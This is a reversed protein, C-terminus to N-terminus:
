SYLGMKTTMNSPGSNYIDHLHDINSALYLKGSIAAFKSWYAGSSSKELYEKQKLTDTESLAIRLTNLTDEFHSKIIKSFDYSTINDSFALIHAFGEDFTIYKLKNIYGNETFPYTKHICIHTFEHTIMGRILSIIDNSDKEYSIFRILDFIVYEVGDYERVMADYPPPCGVALIINIDEILEIWNPFLKSFISANYPTFKSLSIYIKEYIENVKDKYEKNPNPKDFTYEGNDLINYFLWHNVYDDEDALYNKIMSDNINM